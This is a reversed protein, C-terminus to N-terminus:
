IPEGDPGMVRRPTIQRGPAHGIGEVKPGKGKVEVLGVVYVKAANDMLFIGAHSKNGRALTMGQQQEQMLETAGHIGRYTRCTVNLRVTRNPTEGSDNPLSFDISIRWPKNQLKSGKRFTLKNITANRGVQLSDIVRKASEESSLFEYLSESLYTHRSTNDEPTARAIEEQLRTLAKDLGGKPNRRDFLVEGVPEGVQKVTNTGM